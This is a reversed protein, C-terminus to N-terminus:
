FPEYIECYGTTTRGQATDPADEGPTHTWSFLHMSHTPVCMCGRVAGEWRSCPTCFVCMHGTASVCVYIIQLATYTQTIYTDRSSPKHNDMDGRLRGTGNSNGNGNGTDAAMAM